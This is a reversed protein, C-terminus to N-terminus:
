YILSLIDGDEDETDTESTESYSNEVEKAGGAPPYTDIEGSAAPQTRVEIRNEPQRVRKPVATDDLSLARALLDIILATREGRDAKKLENWVARHLKKSCRFRLLINKDKKM